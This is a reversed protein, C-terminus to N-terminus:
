EVGSNEIGDNNLERSNSELEKIKALLRKNVEEPTKCDSLDITRSITEFLKQSDAVSKKVM